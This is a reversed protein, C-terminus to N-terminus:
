FKFFRCFRALSGGFCLFVHFILFVNWVVYKSGYKTERAITRLVARQEQDITYAINKLSNLTVMASQVDEIVSTPLLHRDNNYAAQCECAGAFFAVLFEFCTLVFFDFLSNSSHLFYKSLVNDIRDMHSCTLTHLRSLERDIDINNIHVGELPKTVKACGISNENRSKCSCLPM